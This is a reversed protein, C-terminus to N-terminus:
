YDFTTFTLEKPLKKWKKNRAIKLTSGELQKLLYTGDKQFILQAQLDESGELNIMGITAVNNKVTADLILWKRFDIEDGLYGSMEGLFEQGPITINNDKFNMEIYINNEANFIRKIFVSDNQASAYLAATLSLLIILINRKM